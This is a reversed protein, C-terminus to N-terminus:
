SQSLRSLIESTAEDAISNACGKHDKGIALM